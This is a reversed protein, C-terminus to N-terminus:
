EPPTYVVELKMGDPDAFFVAYYGAGYEPYEAPADLIRVDLAALATFARDVDARTEVGFALHHFGPAYRDHPRDRKDAHAAILSLECAGSRWVPSGFSDPVRRFGLHALVQDYFARSRDLDSV